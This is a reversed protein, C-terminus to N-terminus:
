SLLLARDGKWRREAKPGRLAFALDNNDVTRVHGVESRPVLADVARDGRQLFQLVELANPDASPTVTAVK